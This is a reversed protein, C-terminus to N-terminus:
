GIAITSVYTGCLEGVKSLDDHSAEFLLVIVHMWSGFALSPMTEKPEILRDSHGYWMFCPASLDLDRSLFCLFCPVPVLSQRVTVSALFNRTRLFKLLFLLEDPSTSYVTRPFHLHLAGM